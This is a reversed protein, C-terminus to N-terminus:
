GQLLFLFLMLMINYTDDNVGEKFGQDENYESVVVSRNITGQIM